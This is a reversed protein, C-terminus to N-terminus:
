ICVVMIDKAINRPIIYRSSGVAIVLNRDNTKFVIIESGNYLGLEFYKQYPNNVIKYKLEKKADSLPITNENEM